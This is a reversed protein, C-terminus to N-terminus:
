RGFCDGIDLDMEGSMSPDQSQKPFPFFVMNYASSINSLITITM